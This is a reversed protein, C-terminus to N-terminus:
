AGCRMEIRPRDPYCRKSSGDPANNPSFYALSGFSSVLSCQSDILWALFDVDHCCKHLLLNTNNEERSWRGRVYNHSFRINGIAEMHEIHILRGLVGDSVIQQIRRFADVYRLTHCVSVVLDTEKQTREILRCGDFTDALPKEILIHSGRKLCAVAPGIHQNDMTAIIGADFATTSDILAQWSSFLVDELLHFEQASANRREQVPEAVAVVKAPFGSSSLKRALNTGRVGAGIVVIRLPTNPDKTM